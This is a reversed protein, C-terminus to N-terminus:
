LFEIIVIPQRNVYSAIENIAQKCVNLITKNVTIKLQM